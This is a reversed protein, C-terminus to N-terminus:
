SWRHRGHWRAARQALTKRQEPTLVEAADALARAIRQSAADAQQIKAARLAEIAGRDINPASLLEIAQRRTELAQGRLPALDRAAEKAIGALKQQQEPTADIEVALHKVMREIHQDMEAPDLPGHMGGPGHAFARASLLAGVGGLFGALTIRRFRNM